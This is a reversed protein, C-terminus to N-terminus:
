WAHYQAFKMEVPAVMWIRNMLCVLNNQVLGEPSLSRSYSWGQYGVFFIVRKQALWPYVTTSLIGRNLVRATARSGEVNAALVIGVVWWAGHGHRGGGSIRATAGRGQSDVPDQWYKSEENNEHFKLFFKILGWSKFLPMLSAPLVSSKLISKSIKSIKSINSKKSVKLNKKKNNKKFTGFNEM